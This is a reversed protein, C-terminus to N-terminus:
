FIITMLLMIILAVSLGVFFRLNGRMRRTKNLLRDYDMDLILKAEADHKLKAEADKVRNSLAEKQEKMENILKDNKTIINVLDKKTMRMLTSESATTREM